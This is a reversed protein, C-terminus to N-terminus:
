GFAIDFENGEPDAMNQWRNGELEQVDSLAKGGLEEIRAAAAAMDEVVLDLHVRNKVQKAEPVRQFAIPPAGETAKLLVYQGEGVTSDVETGLIECWFAAMGGPYNSDIVIFQIKGVEM